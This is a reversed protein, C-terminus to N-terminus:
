VQFTEHTSSAVVTTSFAAQDYPTVEYLVEYLLHYLPSVGKMKM